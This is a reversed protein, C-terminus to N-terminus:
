IHKKEGSAAKDVISADNLDFDTRKKKGVSPNAGVAFAAAHCRTRVFFDVFNQGDGM